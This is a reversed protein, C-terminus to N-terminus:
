KRAFAALGRSTWMEYCLFVAGVCLLGALTLVLPSLGIVALIGLVLAGLGALVHGGSGFGLVEIEEAGSQLAGGQSLEFGGLLLSAGFVILAVALLTQTSTGFLALIGLVIGTVGAFFGTTVGRVQSTLPLRLGELLIAVGIIITAVSAMLNPLVGALGIIALVVAGISGIAETISGGAFRTLNWEHAPAHATEVNTANM